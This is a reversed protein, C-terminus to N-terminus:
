GPTFSNEIKILFGEQQLPFRRVWEVGEGLVCGFYYPTLSEDTFSPILSIDLFAVGEEDHGTGSSAPIGTQNLLVSGDNHVL